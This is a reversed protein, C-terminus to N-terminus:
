GRRYTIYAVVCDTLANSQAVSVTLRDNLPFRDHANTIAANANSVAAARPHFLADTASNSVALVNGGRTAYTVTVDTTGGPASAHYDLYISMLEGNLVPSNASGTASGADGTTTVKVGATCIESM